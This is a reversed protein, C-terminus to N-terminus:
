ECLLSDCAWGEWMDMSQSHRHYQYQSQCQCLSDKIRLPGVILYAQADVRM